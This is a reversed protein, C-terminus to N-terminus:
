CLVCCVVCVCLLCAAYSHFANAVRAAYDLIETHAKLDRCSGIMAAVSLVAFSFLSGVCCADALLLAGLNANHLIAHCPHLLSGLPSKFLKEELM